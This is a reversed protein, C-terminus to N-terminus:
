RGGAHAINLSDPDVFFYAYLPLIFFGAALALAFVIGVGQILPTWRPNGWGLSQFASWFGHWLHAGVLIMAILYAGTIWEVKFSAVVLSYLDKMEEGHELPIMRPDGFKFTWVHWVVFVLLVAGTIIMSRSPLSKKSPGGADARKKYSVPRAGFKDILAVTSASIIHFLFVTILAIEFAIVFWGHLLGELFHAYHNFADPGVFLSLNGILHVILYGILLLGTIGTILKKGVSSWAAAQFSSM